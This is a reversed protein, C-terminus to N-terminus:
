KESVATVNGEYNLTVNGNYVDSKLTGDISILADDVVQKPLPNKFALKVLSGDSKDKLTVYSSNKGNYISHVRYSGKVSLM